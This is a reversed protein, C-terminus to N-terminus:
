NEGKQNESIEDLKNIILSLKLYEKKDNEFGLLKKKLKSNVNQIYIKAFEDINSDLLGIYKFVEDCKHKIGDYECCIVSYAKEGSVCAKEDIFKWGNECLYERLIEAKTMPQLILRKTDDCLWKTRHIIKVMLEGGMGAMVIDKACHSEINDLGDSLVTSIIEPFNYKKMYKEINAAANELPKLRVDAAVASKIKGNAALWVPLYAHDTGIDALDTGNRVYSACLALREDLTFM